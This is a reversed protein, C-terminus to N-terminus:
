EFVYCLVFVNLLPVNHIIIMIIIIIFGQYLTLCLEIFRAWFSLQHLDGYQRGYLM